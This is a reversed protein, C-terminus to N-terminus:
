ECHVVEKEFEVDSEIVHDTVVHFIGVYHDLITTIVFGGFLSHLVPPHKSKTYCSLIFCGKGTNCRRKALHKSTCFISSSFFSSNSADNWGEKEKSFIPFCSNLTHQKWHHHPIPTICLSVISSNCKKNSLAFTFMSIPQKLFM